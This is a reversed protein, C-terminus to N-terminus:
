IIITNVATNQLNLQAATISSIVEVNEVTACSLLIEDPQATIQQLSGYVQDTSNPVILIASINPALGQQIYTALETFYFTEGFDWNETSFYSNVLSIFQSRIESDSLTINPNKIVKFTARLETSAKNGFLLKFKASRYIISDSVAKYDDLGSLENNLAVSTPETPQSILGTTDLAWARYTEQYAKTLIFLDIINAPSPDIRRDGPANHKYQFYLVSRGTRVIYDATEVLTRVNAVSQLEYFKEDTTLYFLQGIVFNNILPLLEDYVAYDANVLNPNIPEYSIFNNYGYTKQLYVYKNTPNVTPQVIYNFIDPNDPVGDDNKDSYTILVKSNDIYGDSEIIQDYIYWIYDEQLPLDTDPDGNVKLVNVFDNITLGTIPDFIKVRNDYYFKTQSVSAFIYDLGRIEVTYLPGNVTFSLLWSSDANQGSTSGQNSQSFDSITDIDQATIINWTRNFQDYRVGFETYTSILNILQSKFATTFSNSFAPLVKIAIANSPINDSIVVPKTNTTSPIGSNQVQVITVYLLSKGNPPLINNSPLPKIENKADFYNGSGPSLIVISNETIYHNSGGSSAGIFQAVGAANKFYGSSSGSGVNVRQWYLGSLDFRYFNDYYFQLLRKSRINPLIQNNIVQNIDATTTWSFNITKFSTEEYLVGDDAFINTSSYKGTKDTVDLYRSIGSSSRNVAKIKSVNNYQTFPFTNYDEGTIMRNQTYYQQPAKLRIDDLTERARANTVTYKLSAV